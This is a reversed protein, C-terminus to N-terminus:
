RAAEWERQVFAINDKLSEKGCWAGVVEGAKAVLVAYYFGRARNEDLVKEVYGCLKTGHMVATRGTGSNTYTSFLSQAM